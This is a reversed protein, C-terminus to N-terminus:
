IIQENPRLENNEAAAKDSLATLISPSLWSQSEKGRTKAKGIGGAAPLLQNVLSAIESTLEPFLGYFKAALQAQVSIVLEADGNVVLYRPGGDPPAMFSWKLGTPFGAGGRGRISADKVTALVEEPAMALAKGLAEYGGHRTYTELTWSAPDDWFKTLIPTLTDPM